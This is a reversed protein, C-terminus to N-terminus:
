HEAKQKLVHLLHQWRQEATPNEPLTPPVVDHKVSADARAEARARVIRVSVTGPEDDPEPREPIATPIQVDAATIEFGGGPKEYICLPVELDVLFDGKFTIMQKTYVGHQNLTYAAMVLTMKKADSMMATM